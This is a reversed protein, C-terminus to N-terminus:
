SCNRVVAAAYRSQDAYPQNRLVTTAILKTENSGGVLNYIPFFRPYSVTVTYLTADKAGGQGWNGGDADWSGNLNADEYPEGENCVGDDNTDTWDEPKAEAAESFTRYYRRTINIEANNAMLRVQARVRNDLINQAEAATSAELSSDRATKQVVGQLNARAYLTHAVDFAGLLALGLVPAIIAFEVVTVGSTDRALARNAANRLLNRTM